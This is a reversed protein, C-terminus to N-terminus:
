STEEIGFYLIAAPWNRASSEVCRTAHTAASGTFANRISGVPLHPIAGRACALRQTWEM